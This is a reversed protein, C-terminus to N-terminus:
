ALFVVQKMALSSLNQRYSANQASFIAVLGISMLLVVVGLLGWNFRPRHALHFQQGIVGPTGMQAISEKVATDLDVGNSLKEEILEQLHSELETRVEKHVEKAKIERCVQKLFTTIEEHQRISNM